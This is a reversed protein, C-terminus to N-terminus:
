DSEGAPSLIQMITQWRNTSEIELEHIREGLRAKAGGDTAAAPPALRSNAVVAGPGHGSRPPAPEDRSHRAFGPRPERLPASAFTEPDSPFPPGAVGQPAQQCITWELKLQQLQRNVEHVRLLEGRILELQRSHATSFAQSMAALLQQTQEFYQQQMGSFQQVLARALQDALSREGLSRLPAPRFETIRQAPEPATSGKAAAILELAPEVPEFVPQPVIQAHPEASPSAPEFEPEASAFIIPPPAAIESVIPRAPAAVPSEGSSDTTVASPEEAPPEYTLQLQFRGVTVEDGENLRALSVSRGNVLTGGPCSLDVVWLGCPTWVFSCHVRGVSAHQLRLPCVQSAGALTVTRRIRRLKPRGSRDLVNAITFAALLPEGSFSGDSGGTAENSEDALFDNPIPRISYPGLFIPEGPNVWGSSRGNNSWHTGTRSALDCCFLRGDAFQLYAHRQSIDPHLMRLDCNEAGGILAWPRDILVDETEGSRENCVSLRLPLRSGCAAVFEREDSPLEVIAPESFDGVEDTDNPAIQRLVALRRKRAASKPFRV